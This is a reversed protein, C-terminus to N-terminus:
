AFQPLWPATAALLEGTMADLRDFDIRGALPDALMAEFAITADGRLAAELTLSQAVSTRRVYEGLIGPVTVVDRARVGGADVIGMSEVVAGAEVNTVQGANVLNVPLRAGSDRVIGDLLPAVLEGSPFRTVEPDQRRALDSSCM